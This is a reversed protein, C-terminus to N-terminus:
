LSNPVKAELGGLRGLRVWLEMTLFPPKLPWGDNKAPLGNILQM